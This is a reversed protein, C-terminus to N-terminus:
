ATQVAGVRKEFTVTPSTPMTEKISCVLQWDEAYISTLQLELILHAQWIFAKSQGEMSMKLTQNMTMLTIILTLGCWEEQQKLLLMSRKLTQASLSSSLVLSLVLSMLIEKKLM